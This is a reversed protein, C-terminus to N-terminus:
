RRVMFVNCSHSGVSALVNTLKEVKETPLHELGPSARDKESAKVIDKTRERETHTDRELQPTPQNAGNALFEFVHRSCVCQGGEM